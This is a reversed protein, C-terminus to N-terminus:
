EKIYSRALDLVEEKYELLTDKDKNLGACNTNFVEDIISVLGQGCTQGSLKGQGLQVVMSDHTSFTHLSVKDGSDTYIHSNMYLDGEQPANRKFVAKAKTKKAREFPDIAKDIYLELLQYKTRDTWQARAGEFEKIPTFKKSKMADPQIEDINLTEPVLLEDEEPVPFPLPPQINLTEPVPIDPAATDTKARDKVWTDLTPIEEPIVMRAEREQDKNVWFQLQHELKSNGFTYKNGHEKMLGGLMLKLRTSDIQAVYRLQHLQHVLKQSFLTLIKSPILRDDSSLTAFLLLNKKIHLLDVADQSSMTLIRRALKYSKKNMVPKSTMLLDMTDTGWKIILNLFACRTINNTIRDKTLPVAADRKDEMQIMEKLKKNSSALFGQRQRDAQAKDTFMQNSSLPVAAPGSAKETAARKKAM